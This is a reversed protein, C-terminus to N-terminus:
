PPAPAPQPVTALSRRQKIVRGVLWSSWTLQVTKQMLVAGAVGEIGWYYAGTIMAAIVVFLTVLDFLFLTGPRGLAILARQTPTNAVAIAMALLYIRMAPVAGVFKASAVVRVIPDALLAAVAWALIAGLFVIATFRRLLRRFGAYDNAGACRSLEAFLVQEFPNFMLTPIRGLQKVVKFLGSAYRGLMSGVVIMDMEVHTKKLTLQGNTAVMFHVIGPFAVRAGVLSSRTWGGYGHQAAVYFAFSMDIINGIMEGCILALIAGDLGVHAFGAIVVAVMPCTAQLIDGIAQTRYANCIRFIGDCTGATRTLVTLAYFACLMSEHHSWGFAAPIVFAIGAIVVTALAATTVDITMALKIIRKVDERRGTAMAEAGYKIVAQWTNFNAYAETVSAVTRILALVGFLDPGLQRTLVAISALGAVQSIAKGISVTLGHKMVKRVAGDRLWTAVRQRV